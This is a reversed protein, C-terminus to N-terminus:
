RQCALLYPLLEYKTHYIAFDPQAIPQQEDEASAGTLLFLVIVYTQLLAGGHRSKPM